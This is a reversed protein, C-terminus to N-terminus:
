YSPIDAIPSESSRESVSRQLFHLVLFPLLCQMANAVRPCAKTRSKVGDQIEHPKVRSRPEMKLVIRFILSMMQITGRLPSRQRPQPTAATQLLNTVQNWSAYKSVGTNNTDDACTNLSSRLASPLSVTCRVPSLSTYHMFGWAQTRMANTRSSTSVNTQTSLPVYQATVNAIRRARCHVLM